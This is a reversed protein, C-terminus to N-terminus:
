ALGRLSGSVAYRGRGYGDYQAPAPQLAQLTRRARSARAELLSENVGTRQQCQLILERLQSRRAPPLATADNQRLVALLGGLQHLAQAKDRCVRGLGDMDGSLLAQHEQELLALVREASAEYSQAPGSM